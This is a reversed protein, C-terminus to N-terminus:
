QANKKAEDSSWLRVKNLWGKEEWYTADYPNLKKSMLFRFLSFFLKTRLSVGKKGHNRKIKEALKQVRCKLAALRKEDVKSFDSERLAFSLTYRNRLGLYFLSDQLMKASSKLGAGVTTLVAVGDKKFMREDPRHASGHMCYVPSSLIILNSDFLKEKIPELDKKHPCYEEGRLFCANCGICFSGFDRPLYVETAEEGLSDLLMDVLEYTNGKHSQGYIALIKM